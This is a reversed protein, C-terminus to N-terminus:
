RPSYTTLILLFMARGVVFGQPVGSTVSCRNSSTGQLTVVQTRNKFFASTWSTIQEYIVMSTMKAFLKFYPVKDFAKSFGLLCADVKKRNDLEKSIDAVLKVLQTECSLKAGFGHQRPYLLINCEVFKMIHSTVIHEM